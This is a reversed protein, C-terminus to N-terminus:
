GVRRIEPIADLQPITPQKWYLSSITVVQDPGFFQMETGASTEPIRLRREKDGESRWGGWM